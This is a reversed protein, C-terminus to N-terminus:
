GSTCKAQGQGTTPHHARGRGRAVLLLLAGIVVNSLRSSPKSCFNTCSSSKRKLAVAQRLLSSPHHAASFSPSEPALASVVGLFDDCGVELPWAVTHKALQALVQRWLRGPM